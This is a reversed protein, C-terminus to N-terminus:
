VNDSSKFAKSKFNDANDVLFNFPTLAKKDAKTFSIMSLFTQLVQTLIFFQPNKWKKETDTM